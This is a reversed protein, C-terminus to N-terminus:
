IYCDNTVTLLANEAYINGLSTTIEATVCYIVGQTGSEIRHFTKAGVVTASGTLMGTVATSAPRVAMIDWVSSSVSEGSGIVNVFDFGYTIKESVRKPSFSLPKDTQYKWTQM